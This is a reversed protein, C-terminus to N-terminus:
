IPLVRRPPAKAFRAERLYIPQLTDASVFESRAAGLEAVMAASPFLVRGEPFWHEIDPGILMHSARGRARVEELSALRLPQIPQCGSPTLDYEALCFEDRQADIVICTKGIWGLGTAQAALCEVSSVGITHIPRVLQWGQALAIAARIGTYSGPGLGVAIVEIQERETEAAGLTREILGLANLSQASGEMTLALLGSQSNPTDAKGGARTEFVAASRQSSSFEVALIKM